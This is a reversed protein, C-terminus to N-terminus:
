SDLRGLAIALDAIPIDWVGDRRIDQQKDNLSVVYQMKGDPYCFVGIRNEQNGVDIAIEGDSMPYIDYFVPSVNFMEELVFRANSVALDSPEVCGDEQAVLKINSLVDLAQRLAEPLDGMPKPVSSSGIVETRISHDFSTAEPAEVFICEESVLSLSTSSDWFKYSLLNSIERGMQVTRMEPLVDPERKMLQCEAIVGSELRYYLFSDKSINEPHEYGLNNISPIFVLSSKTVSEADRYSEKEVTADTAQLFSIM